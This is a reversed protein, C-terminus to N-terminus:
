STACSGVKRAEAAFSFPRGDAIGQTEIQVLRRTERRIHTRGYGHGRCTYQVTVETPDDTVILRHCADGRHRLQILKQADPLCIHEIPSGTDRMRLEWRGPELTDLMGLPSRAHGQAPTGLAILCGALIGASRLKMTM